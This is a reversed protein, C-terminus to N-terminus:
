KRQPRWAVSTAAGHQGANLALRGEAHRAGPASGQEHRYEIGPSVALDLLVDGGDDTIRLRSLEKAQPLAPRRARMGRRREAGRCRRPGHSRAPSGRVEGPLCECIGTGQDTWQNNEVMWLKVPTPPVAALPTESAADVATPQADAAGAPADDAADQAMAAADVATAEASPQAAAGDASSLAPAVDM